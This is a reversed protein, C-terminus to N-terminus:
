ASPAPALAAPPAALTALARRSEEQMMQVALEQWQRWRGQRNAEIGARLAALQTSPGHGHRQPLSDELVQWDHLDGLLTQAQKLIAIWARGQPEIAQELHELAYRVGKIRKRLEHLEVAEPSDAHWGAELFLAATLPLHWEQRWARLPQQGLLTFRPKQQWGELRALLKRYRGSGLAEVVAAFAKDRERRLQRLVPKLAQAEALPLQPLIEQELRQDLVDLDRTRGTRRALAAIRSSSVGDPLRLAPEFQSLATRLRRLSVRFQHLPEPDTDALVERHLHALRQCQHRILQLAHEGSSLSAEVM